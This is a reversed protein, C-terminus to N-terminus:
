IGWWGFMKGALIVMVLGVALFGGGVVYFLWQNSAPRLAESQLGLMGAGGLGTLVIGILTACGAQRVAPTERELRTRASM